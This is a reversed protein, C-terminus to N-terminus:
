MAKGNAEKIKRYINRHKQMRNRKALRREGMM